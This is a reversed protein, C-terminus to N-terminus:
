GRKGKSIAKGREQLDLYRRITIARELILELEKPTNLKGERQIQLVALNFIDM